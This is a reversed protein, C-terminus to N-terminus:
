WPTYSDLGIPREPCKHYKLEPDIGSVDKPPGPRDKSLSLILPPLHHIAHLIFGWWTAVSSSESAIVLRRLSLILPTSLGSVM